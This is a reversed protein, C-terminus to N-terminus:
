ASLAADLVGIADHLLEDSITLPPLFRIVNGYTGASLLLVGQQAAAAVARSVIAADPESEFEPVIRATGPDEITILHGHDFEFEILTGEPVSPSPRARVRLCKWAM